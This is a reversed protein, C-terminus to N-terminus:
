GPFAGELGDWFKKVSEPVNGDIRAGAMIEEPLVQRRLFVKPTGKTARTEESVVGSRVLLSQIEPWSPDGFLSKLFDDSVCVPNSRNYARVLKEVLDFQNRAVKRTPKQTPLFPIAAGISVLADQLAHPEFVTRASDGDLIRLGGIVDSAVRLGSLELRTDALSILPEYFMVDHVTAGLIRCNSFNVRRFEVHDFTSNILEVKEFDGGPIVLNRLELNQIRGQSSCYGRILVRALAGANERIQGGRVSHTAGAESLNGILFRVDPLPSSGLLLRSTTEAVEDPLVSRGLLGSLTSDRKSLAEVFRQALFYAFFTEHEFTITGTRDGPSLFALTTMRESVVRYAADEVGSTLLVYEAVDRVSKQDLERTEQNWMEEALTVLLAVLQDRTLLSGGSKNLLKEKRERELYANVLEDLLFRDGALPTGNAILDVTKAVFLPKTKLEANRGGFARDVDKQFTDPLQGSPLQRYRKSVYEDFEADGWALVEVPIQRWIQAGLSSVRNARAVFEQEYYTSRASAVLRGSGDLEEIFSALSSFADEYGGVGLLEDFGDIVPIVIGLRVLTSVAHYTLTARLDNLETALAENFRALARGQANIYLFLSEEQGRTYQEARAKVLHQLVSTKGAGAEGTVMIVLTADEGTPDNLANTLISTATAEGVREQDLRRARTEVFLASARTRSIMKALGLLDAMSSSAFFSRYSYARDQFKVSVGDEVSVNFTAECSRQRQEWMASILRGSASLTLTTGPDVFPTLDKEIRRRWFDVFDRIELQVSM